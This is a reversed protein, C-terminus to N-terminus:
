SKCFKIMVDEESERPSMIKQIIVDYTALLM